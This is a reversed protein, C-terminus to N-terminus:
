WKIPQAGRRKNCLLRSNYVPLSHVAYTRRVVALGFPNSIIVLTYYVRFRAMATRVAWCLM